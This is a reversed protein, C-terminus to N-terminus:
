HIISWVEALVQSSTASKHAYPNVHHSVQWAIVFIGFLTKNLPSQTPPNKIAKKCKFKIRRKENKILKRSM